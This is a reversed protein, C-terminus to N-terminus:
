IPSRYERQIGKAKQSHLFSTNVFLPIAAAFRHDAGRLGFGATQETKVPFSVEEIESLLVVQLPM